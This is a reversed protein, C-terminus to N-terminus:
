AQFLDFIFIIIITIDINLANETKIQSFNLSNIIEMYIDCFM